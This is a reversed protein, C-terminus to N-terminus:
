SAPASARRRRAGSTGSRPRGTGSSAKRLLGYEAVARIIPLREITAGFGWLQVYGAGPRDPRYVQLWATAKGSRDAALVASVAEPAIPYDGRFTRDIGWARGLETPGAPNEDYDITKASIGLLPEMRAPEDGLVAGASDRVAVGLPVSFNVIKGGRELYRRLPGADGAAMTLSPPIV